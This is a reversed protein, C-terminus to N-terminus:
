QVYRLFIDIQWGVLGGKIHTTTHAIQIESVMALPIFDSHLLRPDGNRVSLVRIQLDLYTGRTMTAQSLTSSLLASTLHYFALDNRPALEIM